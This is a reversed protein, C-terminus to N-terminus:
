GHGECMSCGSAISVATVRTPIQGARTWLEGCLAGVLCILLALWWRVLGEHSLVAAAIIAM